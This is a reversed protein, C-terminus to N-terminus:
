GLVAQEKEKRPPQDPKSKSGGKLINIASESEKKGMEIRRCHGELYAGQEIALEEHLIDGIVHATKSLSVLRAKIQGDVNGHVRVSDAVIEGKVLAGEGILLEHTQIDGEVNGDIQIEGASILNGIVKLDTSLISPPAPVKPIEPIDQNNGKTFM